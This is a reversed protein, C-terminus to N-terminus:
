THLYSNFNLLHSCKYVYMNVLSVINIWNNIMLQVRFSITVTVCHLIISENKLENYTKARRSLRMPDRDGCEAKTVLEDSILILTPYESLLWVRRAFLFGGDPYTCFPSLCPM